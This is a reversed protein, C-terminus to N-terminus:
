GSPRRRKRDYFLSSMVHHDSWGMTPPGEPVSLDTLAPKWASNKSTKSQGSALDLPLLPCLPCQPSLVVPSHQVFAEYSGYLDFTCHAVNQLQIVMSSTVWDQLDWLTHYLSKFSRRRTQLIVGFAEMIVLLIKVNETFTDVAHHDVKKWVFVDIFYNCCMQIIEKSSQIAQKPLPNDIIAFLSSWVLFTICFDLEFTSEQRQM